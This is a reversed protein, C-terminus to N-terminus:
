PIAHRQRCSRFLQLGLERIRKRLFIWFDKDDLVGFQRGCKHLLDNCYAHFTVPRLGRFETGRLEAQVRERM